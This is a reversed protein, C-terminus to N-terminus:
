DRYSLFVGFTRPRLTTDTFAYTANGTLFSSNALALDPHANTLNNVFFELSGKGDLLDMGIRAGLIQYGPVPVLDPNYQPLKPNLNGFRPVQTSGTLDGRIFFTREDVLQFTYQASLSYVWPASSGPVAGGKDAIITGNPSYSNTSFASNNYGLAATISLGPVPLLQLGLDFGSSVASGLNAVFYEACQNLFIQTQINRWQIYYGSADLVLKGDFMRNKTGLEYSWVSDSGYTLPQIPNGSSDVYGLTQEDQGCAVPLQQNAGAPRFGKSATAYVMDNEDIQYTLGIKPTLAHGQSKLVGHTYSPGAAPDYSPNLGFAPNGYPPNINTEPGSYEDAYSLTTESYRLGATLKLGAFIEYDAQAFGAIQTDTTNFKIGWMSYDPDPSQGFWNQFATSGPGFPPGNNVARLFPPIFFWGVVPQLANFNTPIRQSGGQRNRAYFVGAVWKLRASDDTSQIRVEQVFNKQSNRYISSGKQGATPYPFTSPNVAYFWLYYQTFDFWQSSNRDFYSTNSFLKVPGLDWSAALAPLLFEDDASDKSPVSLPNLNQAPDGAPMSNDFVPRAYHGNSSLSPWFTNHGDNDHVRQYTLSPTIEISDTLAIKVAVRGGITDSFNTNKRTVKVNTFTLDAPSHGNPDLVVPTGSVGDIWGGDRRYYISARFGVRGDIIPAGYAAGAEYSPGGGETSSYESRAYGSSTTLSPTTQIFRITGGESSAGFLTGQPGRLVEVRELDFLAPFANNPNYGVNRVQIPTDDIYIGTTGAGGSSSIGRISINNTGNSGRSIVLGPTYNALDDVSKVGRADLQDQSFVAVSIPVKSLKQASRTATVVVEEIGSNAAKADQAQAGATALVGSFIAGAILGATGRAVKTMTTAGFDHAFAGTAPWEVRVM